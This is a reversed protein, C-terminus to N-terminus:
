WLKVCVNRKANSGDGWWSKLASLPFTAHPPATPCVGGGIGVLASLLFICDSRSNSSSAAARGLIQVCLVESSPIHCIESFEVASDFDSQDLTRLSSVEADWSSKSLRTGFTKLTACATRSHSVALCFSCHRNTALGEKPEAASRM